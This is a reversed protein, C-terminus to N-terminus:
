LHAQFTTLLFKCNVNQGHPVLKGMEIKTGKAIANLPLTWVHQRGRKGRRTSMWGAKSRHWQQDSIVMNGKEVSADNFDWLQITANKSGEIKLILRKNPDKASKFLRGDRLFVQNMFDKHFFPLRDMLHIGTGNSTRGGIPQVTLDPRLFPHIMCAGKMAFVDAMPTKVMPTKLVPTPSKVMMLEVNWIGNQHNKQNLIQIKTGNGVNGGAIHWCMSTEKRSVINMGEICWEQNENKGLVVDNLEIKTGNSTRGYELHLSKSPDKASRFITGDWLWAQNNFDKHGVPLKDWLQIETGNCTRGGALQVSKGPCKMPVILYAIM